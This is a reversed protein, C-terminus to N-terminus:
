SYTARPRWWPGDSRSKSPGHHDGGGVAGAGTFEANPTMLCISGSKVSLRQLTGPPFNPGTGIKEKLLVWKELRM